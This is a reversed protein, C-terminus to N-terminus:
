IFCRSKATLPSIKLTLYFGPFKLSILKYVKQKWFETNEANRTHCIWNPNKQGFLLCVGYLVVSQPLSKNACAVMYDIITTPFPTLHVCTKVTFWYMLSHSNRKLEFSLSTRNPLDSNANQTERELPKHPPSRRMKRYDRFVKYKAFIIRNITTELTLPKWSLSIWWFVLIEGDSKFLCLLCIM